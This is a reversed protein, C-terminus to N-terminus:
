DAAYRNLVAAVEEESAFEGRDAQALGQEIGAVWREQWALTRGHSLAEEIIRGRTLTSREALADIRRDLDEPIADKDM